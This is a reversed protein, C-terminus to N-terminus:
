LIEEINAILNPEFKYGLDIMYNIRNLVGYSVMDVEENYHLIPYMSDFRIEKNDDEYYFYVGERHAGKGEYYKYNFRKMKMDGKM